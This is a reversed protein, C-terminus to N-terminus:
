RALEMGFKQSVEESFESLQSLSLYDKKNIEGGPGRTLARGRGVYEM